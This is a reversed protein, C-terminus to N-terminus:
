SLGALEHLTCPGVSGLARRTRREVEGSGVAVIPTASEAITGWEGRRAIRCSPAKTLADRDHPYEEDEHLHPEDLLTPHQLCLLQLKHRPKRLHLGCAALDARADVGHLLAVLRQLHPRGPMPRATWVLAADVRSM